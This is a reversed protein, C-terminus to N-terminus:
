VDNSYDPRIHVSSCQLIPPSSEPTPVASIDSLIKIFISCMCQQRKVILIFQGEEQVKRKAHEEHCAHADKGSKLEGKNNTNRNQSNPITTSNNASNGPQFHHFLQLEVPCLFGSLLKTHIWPIESYGQAGNKGTKRRLNFIGNIM